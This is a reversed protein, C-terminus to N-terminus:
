ASSLATTSIAGWGGDSPRPPRSWARALRRSAGPSRRASTVVAVLFLTSLAAVALYLQTALVSHTISQFAFPGEDHTTGWVAFGVAITTAVTAGRAGFRLAAWILTPFVLYAVPENSRFALESAGAVAAVM